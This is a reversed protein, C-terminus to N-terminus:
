ASKQQESLVKKYIFFNARLGGTDVPNPLEKTLKWGPINAEIWPTFHRARVHPAELNTDVANYSQIIIYRSASAFLDRMYKEFIEDEVLHYLVDLSIAVESLFVSGNDQFFEPGYLFFSKTSDNEFRKMCRALATQSVELGIYKPFNFLSLQRGEGCGFDIVSRINNDKVFTNLVSAKYKAFEGGSGSGSDGGRKYNKEWFNRSGRFTLYSLLTRIKRAVGM